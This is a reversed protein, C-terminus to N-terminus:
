SPPHKTGPPSQKSSDLVFKFVLVDQIYMSRPTRTSTIGFKPEFTWQLAAAEAAIVLNRDPRPLGVAFEPCTREVFGNSNILVRVRVTGTIGAAKTARPYQPEERRLVARPLFDSVRVPRFTSFGCDGEPGSETVQALALQCGLLLLLILKAM